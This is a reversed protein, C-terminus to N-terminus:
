KTQQLIRMSKQKRVRVKFQDPMIYAVATGDLHFVTHCHSVAPSLGLHLHFGARLRLSPLESQPQTPPHSFATPSPSTSRATTPRPPHRLTTHTHTHTHPPPIHFPSVHQFPDARLIARCQGRTSVRSNATAARSIKGVTTPRWMLPSLQWQPIMILTM